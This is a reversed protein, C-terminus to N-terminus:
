LGPEALASNICALREVLPGRARLFPIGRQRLTSEYWRHQELRFTENKRTGDQEFSFDPECLVTLDYSRHSLTMLTSPQQQYTWRAYGLTTLPSTDCFLFQRAHRWLLEEQEIQTVGIRILDELSLTGQQEIWLERGFEEVWCTKHHEALARALTTKGTSEGGLFVVRRVFDRYVDPHMWHRQGHVDDRIRTASIPWRQRDADVLVPVVQCGLVSSLRSACPYVYSESAFLADPAAGFAQSLLWALYDQHILDSAANPPIPRYNCGRDKCRGLLSSADLQFSQVQPFRAKFWQERRVRDCGPFEPESYGLALVRECRALAAGIVHEHGLHLPSFKGVVLGLRFHPQAATM